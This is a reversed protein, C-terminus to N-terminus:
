GPISGPDEVYRSFISLNARMVLNPALKTIRAPRVNDRLYRLLSQIAIRGQTFPRQYLSAMVYGNEMEAVLEPFLDTVVIRVSDLRGAERIARLVPLSNATSIYLGQMTRHEALMKRAMSYAQAPDDHSEVVPLLRLHPALLALSAAYGRLKESHDFVRLDGTFIGVTASPPM